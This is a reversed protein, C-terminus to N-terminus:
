SAVPDADRDDGFLIRAMAISKGHLTAISRVLLDKSLGLEKLLRESGQQELLLERSMPDAHVMDPNKTMMFSAADALQVLRILSAVTGSQDEPYSAGHHFRIVAAIRLPLKWLECARAGLEAHDYGLIAREATVLEPGTTWERHELAAFAEPAAVLTIFRGLDHLLGCLYAEDARIGLHPLTNAFYRTALAVQISHLWLEREFPHEPHFVPRRRTLQALGHRVREAGVRALVAPISLCDPPRCNLQIQALFCMRLALTPDLEALLETRDALAHGRGDVSLLNLAVNPLVPLQDLYTSLLRDTAKRREDHTATVAVM